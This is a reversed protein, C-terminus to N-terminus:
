AGAAPEPSAAPEPAADPETAVAADPTGVEEGTGFEGAPPDGAPEPAAGTEQSQRRSRRRRTQAPKAKAAVAPPEPKAGEDSTSSDSAGEESVVPVVPEGPVAGIPRMNGPIERVETELVLAPGGGPGLGVFPNNAPDRPANATMMQERESLLVRDGPAVSRGERESKENFVVVGVHGESANRFEAQPDPM